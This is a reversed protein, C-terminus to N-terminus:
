PTSERRYVHWHSPTLSGSRVSRMIRYTNGHRDAIRQRGVGGERPDFLIYWEAGQSPLTAADFLRYGAGPISASHYAILLRNRFEHNSYCTVIGQPDASTARMWRLTDAYAGRGQTILTM